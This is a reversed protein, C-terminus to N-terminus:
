FTGKFKEDVDNTLELTKQDEVHIFLKTPNDTKSPYMSDPESVLSTNKEYYCCIEAMLIFNTQLKVFIDKKVKIAESTYLLQLDKAISIVEYLNPGTSGM